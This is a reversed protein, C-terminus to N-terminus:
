GGSSSSQGPFYSAITKYNILVVSLIILGLLSKALRPYFDSIMILLFGAVIWMLVNKAASSM